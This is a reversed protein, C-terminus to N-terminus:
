RLAPVSLFAMWLNSAMWLSLVTHVLRTMQLSLVTFFLSGNLDLAGHPALPGSALLSGDSSLSGSAFLSGYLSSLWVLLRVPGDRGIGHQDRMESIM